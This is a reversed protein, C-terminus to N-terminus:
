NTVTLEGILLTYHLKLDANIHCVLQGSQKVRFTQAFPNSISVAPSTVCQGVSLVCSAM